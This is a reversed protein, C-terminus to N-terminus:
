RTTNLPSLWAKANSWSLKIQNIKCPIGLYRMLMGKIQMFLAEREEIEQCVLCVELSHLKGTIAQPENM